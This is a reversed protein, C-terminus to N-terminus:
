IEVGGVNHLAGVFLLSNALGKLSGIALSYLKPVPRAQDRAEGLVLTLPWRLYDRRERRFISILKLRAYL